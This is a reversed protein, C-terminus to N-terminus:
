EWAEADGPRSLLAGELLPLAEACAEGIDLRRGRALQVLALGRDRNVERPEPFPRMRFFDVVGMKSAAKEDPQKPPRRVIRHDTVATHAVDASPYPPMHCQICSDEKSQGLRAALPESCPRDDHCELCRRRFAGVREAPTEKHHPNHCSICGLKNPGTSREFCRSQYMQEVHNVAKRNAGHEDARVFVSWFRELPLGPRFDYLGRGRRVLRVEGALHCQQCVAERLAPELHRPNVITTDRKGEVPERDTRARVHLEGPGHCRECGIAHGRLPPTEYRNIFGPRPAARNAHCFLCEPVIERGPHMGGPFGPSRDWAGKQAFWSITTQFLYGDRDTLYSHGRAGSGVAYHVELALACVPRGDAGLAEQVHLVRQGRREVRQRAGLATFPNNVEPGYRQLEALAAVPQLSRGMPHARYTQVVGRHCDSCADDGVYKVAPHVNRFSGRYALRPDDEPPRQAAPPPVPQEGRWLWAVVGVAFLLLGAGLALWLPRRGQRTASPNPPSNSM